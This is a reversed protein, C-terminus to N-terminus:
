CVAFWTRVMNKHCLIPRYKIWVRELGAMLLFLRHRHREYAYKRLHLLGHNSPNTLLTSPSEKAKVPCACNALESIQLNATGEGAEPERSGGAMVRIDLNLDTGDCPLM